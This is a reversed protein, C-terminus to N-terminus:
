ATKNVAFDDQFMVSSRILSLRKELKVKYCKTRFHSQEQLSLAINTSHTQNFFSSQLLSCFSTSAKLYLKAKVFVPRFPALKVLCNKLLMKVSFLTGPDLVRKDFNFELGGHALGTAQMSLEVANSRVGNNTPDVFLGKHVV